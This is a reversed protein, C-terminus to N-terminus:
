KFCKADESDVKAKASENCERLEKAKQGKNIKGKEKAEKECVSLDHQYIALNAKACNKMAELLKNQGDHKEDALTALSYLSLAILLFKM